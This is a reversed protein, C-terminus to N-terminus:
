CLPFDIFGWKDNMKVAAIGERSSEADEYILTAM